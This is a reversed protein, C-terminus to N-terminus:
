TKRKGNRWQMVLFVADLIYKWMNSEELAYLAVRLQSVTEVSVPQAYKIDTM